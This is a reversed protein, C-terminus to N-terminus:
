VDMTKLNNNHKIKIINCKDNYLKLLDVNCKYDINNDTYM